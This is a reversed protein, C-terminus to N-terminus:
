NEHRMIEIMDTKCKREYDGDKIHRLEHEYSILNQEYCLKSNLVITYSDDESDRIVYSHLGFPMDAYMM